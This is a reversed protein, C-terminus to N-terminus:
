MRNRRSCGRDADLELFVDVHVVALWPQGDDRGLAGYLLGIHRRRKM